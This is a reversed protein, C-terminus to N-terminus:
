RKPEGDDYSASFEMEWGQIRVFQNKESNRFGVSFASLKPIPCKVWEKVTLKQEGSFSIDKSGLLNERYNGYFDVTLDFEGQISNIWVREFNKDVTPTGYNLWACIINVEFASKHDTFDWRTNTSKLGWIKSDSDLLYHNDTSTNLISTVPFREWIYWASRRSEATESYDLVFWTSGVACVYLDLSKFNAATATSYDLKQFNNQQYDCIPYGVHVPLRGAVCSYFGKDADLWILSGYVDQITKHSACGIDDELIELTLDNTGLDGSLIGTSREKFAFLSDKNQAIGKVKDSFQSDISFEHLGDLPFGESTLIDTYYITQYDCLFAVTYIDQDNIRTQCFATTSISKATPYRNEALSSDPPLGAQTLCSQWSTIYKGAKPLEGGPDNDVLNEVIDTDAKNEHYISYEVSTRPITSRYSLYFPGLQGIRTRYIEVFFGPPVQMSDPVKSEYFEQTYYANVWSDNDFRAVYALDGATCAISQLVIGTANVSVVKAYYGITLARTEKSVTNATRVEQRIVMGPLINHGSDVALTIGVGTTNGQDGNVKAGFVPFDPGAVMGGVQIEEYCNTTPAPLVQPAAPTLLKNITGYVTAGSYDTFGTRYTYYYSGFPLDTAVATGNFSQNINSATWTRYIDASADVSPTQYNLHPVGARYVVKGDYKMLFGGDTIYVSNNLNTSSIGEYNEAVDPYTVANQARVTTPFPVSTWTYDTLYNVTKETVQTVTTCVMDPYPVVTWFHSSNDVFESEIVVKLLYALKTSSTTVDGFQDIIRVSVGTLLNLATRLQEMTMSDSVNVQGIGNMSFIYSDSIEDYYFSYSTAAGTTIFELTHSVQKYLRGDTKVCLVESKSQGTNVDRFKYEFIDVINTDLNVHQAGYAGQMEDQFNYRYNKSGNRQTRTNMQLKNSRTDTGALDAYHRDVQHAM